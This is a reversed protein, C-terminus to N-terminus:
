MQDFFVYLAGQDDVKGVGSLGILNNAQNAKGYHIVSGIPTESVLMKMEGYRKAEARGLALFAFHPVSGM